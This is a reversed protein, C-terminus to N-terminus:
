DNPEVRIIDTDPYEVVNLDYNECIAAFAQRATINEWRFTLLPASGDLQWPDVRPSLIYKLCAQKALTKLATSIPVDEFQILPIINTDDGYFDPKVFNVDHNRTRILVVGTEPDRAIALYYHACVAIFIEKSTVNERRFSLTPERKEGDGDQQGYDIHPDLMYNFGAQRALNDLAVTVPIDKFEIIPIINTGKSVLDANIPPAAENRDTVRGISTLPDENLVLHNEELLRFFADRPTINTWSMTVIPEPKIQGYEDPQGYGIRPDFMYNIGAHRALNVLAITLPVNQFEIINTGYHQNSNTYKKLLAKARWPQYVDFTNTGNSGSSANTPNYNVAFTNTPASVLSFTQARITVAVTLSILAVLVIIESLRRGSKM